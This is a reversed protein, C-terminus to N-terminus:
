HKTAYQTGSPHKKGEIMSRGIAFAKGMFVQAVSPPKLRDFIFSWEYVNGSRVEELLPGSDLHSRFSLNFKEKPAIPLGSVELRAVDSHQVVHGRIPLATYLNEVATMDAEGSLPKCVIRRTRGGKRDKEFMIKVHAGRKTDRFAVGAGSLLAGEDYSAVKWLPKGHSEDLLFPLVTHVETLVFTDRAKTGDVNVNKLASVRVYGGHKANVEYIIVADGTHWNTAQTIKRKFKGGRGEEEVKYYGIDLNVTGKRKDRTDEPPEGSGFLMGLVMDQVKGRVILMNTDEATPVIQFLFKQSSDGEDPHTFDLTRGQSNEAGM